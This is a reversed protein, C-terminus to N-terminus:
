VSVLQAICRGAVDLFTGLAIGGLVAIIAQSFATAVAAETIGAVGAIWAAFAKSVHAALWVSFAKTFDSQGKWWACLDKLPQWLAIDWAEIDLNLQIKICGKVSEFDDIDSM